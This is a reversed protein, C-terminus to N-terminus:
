DVQLNPIRLYFPARREFILQKATTLTELGAPLPYRYDHMVKCMDWDYTRVYAAHRRAAEEGPLADTVFHVWVTCPPYDIDGGNVAAEFRQRKNM